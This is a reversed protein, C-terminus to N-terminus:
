KMRFFCSMIGLVGQRLFNLVSAQLKSWFLQGSLLNDFCLQDNPLKGKQTMPLVVGGMFQSAQLTQLCDIILFMKLVIEKVGHKPQSKSLPLGCM